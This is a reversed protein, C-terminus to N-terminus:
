RSRINLIPILIISLIYGLVISQFQFGPIGTLSSSGNDAQSIQEKKVEISTTDTISQYGEKEVQLTIDYIGEIFNETSLTSEYSGKDKHM